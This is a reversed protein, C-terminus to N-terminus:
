YELPIDSKSCFDQVIFIFLSFSATIIFSVRFLNEEM